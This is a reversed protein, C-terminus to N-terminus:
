DVSGDNPTRRNDGRYEFEAERIEAPHDKGKDGGPPIPRPARAERPPSDPRDGPEVPLGPADPRPQDPM